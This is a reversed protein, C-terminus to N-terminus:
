GALFWTLCCCVIALLSALLQRPWDALWCDRAAARLTASATPVVGHWCIFTSALCDALLV